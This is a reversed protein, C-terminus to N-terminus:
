RRAERALLEDFTPQRGPVGARLRPEGGAESHAIERRAAPDTMSRHVVVRVGPENLDRLEIPECRCPIGDTRHDGRVDPRAAHITRSTM